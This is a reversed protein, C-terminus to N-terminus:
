RASRATRRSNAPAAPPAARDWRPAGARNLTRIPARPRRRAAAGRLESRGFKRRLVAQGSADVGHAQFVRKAIDLGITAVQM